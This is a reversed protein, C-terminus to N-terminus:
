SGRFILNRTWNLRASIAGAAGVCFPSISDPPAQAVARVLFNSIKM